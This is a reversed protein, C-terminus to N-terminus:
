LSPGPAGGAAAFAPNYADPVARFAPAISM